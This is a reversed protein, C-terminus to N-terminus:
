VHGVPQMLVRAKVTLGTGAVMVPVGVTHAPRLVVSLSATVPPVHVLLLALAVALEVVPLTVPTVAPLLIM